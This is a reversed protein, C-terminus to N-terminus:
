SIGGLAKSGESTVARDIEDITWMMTLNHLYAFTELTHVKINEGATDIEDITWMMKLNHLYAFTELTHVKINELAVVSKGDIFLL